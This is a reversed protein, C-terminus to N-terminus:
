TGWGGLLSSSAHWQMGALPNLVPPVAWFGKAVSRALAWSGEQLAREPGNVGTSGTSPTGPQNSRLLALLSASRCVMRKTCSCTYSCMESRFCLNGIM